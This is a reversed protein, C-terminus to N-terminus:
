NISRATKELSIMDKVKANFGEDPCCGVCYAMIGGYTNRGIYMQGKHIIRECHANCCITRKQAKRYFWALM